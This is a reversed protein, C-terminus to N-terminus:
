ILIKTENSESRERLFKLHMERFQECMPRFARIIKSTNIGDAHALAYGLYQTFSGGFRIMGQSADVKFDEMDEVSDFGCYYAGIKYEAFLTELDEEKEVKDIKIM